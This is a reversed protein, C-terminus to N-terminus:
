CEGLVEYGVGLYSSCSVMAFSLLRWVEMPKRLIGCHGGLGERGGFGGRKRWGACV